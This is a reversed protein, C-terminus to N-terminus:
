TAKRWKKMRRDGKRLMDVVPMPTDKHFHQTGPVLEFGLKKYFAQARGNYEVVTVKIDHEKGLWELAPEALEMALGSGYESKDIYLGNLEHSNEDRRADVFGVIKGQNDKAIRFFYDPNAYSENIYALRKKNGEPSMFQGARKQVFDESVGANENPYADLWSQAHMEALENVDEKTPQVIRYDSM